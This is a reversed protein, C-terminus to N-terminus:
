ILYATGCVDYHSTSSRPLGPSARHNGTSENRNLSKSKVWTEPPFFDMRCYLKSLLRLESSFRSNFSLGVESETPAIAAATDGNFGWSWASSWDHRSYRGTASDPVGEPGQDLPYDASRRGLGGAMLVSHDRNTLISM